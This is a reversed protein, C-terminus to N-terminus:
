GAELLPSRALETYRAAPQALTSQMLAIADFTVAQPPTPLIAFACGPRLRALTIHARFRRPEPEFGATRAHRECEAALDVIAPESQLELVLLRPRARNPWVGFRRAAIAPLPTALAPLTCKFYEIQASDSNGLFRLTLHLAAPEVWRVRRAAGVITRELSARCQQLARRSAADPVLAVFCRLGSTADPENRM